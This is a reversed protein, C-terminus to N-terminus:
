LSPTFSPGVRALNRNDRCRTDILRRHRWGLLRMTRPEHGTYTFDLPISFRTPAVRAGFHRLNLEGAGAPGGGPTTPPQGFIFRWINTLENTM